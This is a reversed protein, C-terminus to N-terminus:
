PAAGVNAFEGHFRTAADAYAKAADAPDDFGGLYQKKGNFTIQAVWKNMVADWSVGKFGSANTSRLGCNQQNEAHTAERLNAVANNLKNGDIHDIQEAPWAGNVYFWALRHGYYFRGEIGIRLYGKPIFWGANTGCLRSNWSNTCRDNGPRRKWTFIGTEHDYDLRELLQEHTIM